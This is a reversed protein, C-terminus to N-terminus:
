SLTFDKPIVVDDNAAPVVDGDWNKPEMWGKDDTEGDWIVVGAHVLSALLILISILYTRKM